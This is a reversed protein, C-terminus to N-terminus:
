PVCKGLGNTDSNSFDPCTTNSWIIRSLNAGTLISNPMFTHSLDARSLNAGSFDVSELNMGSLNAGSLNANTFTAVLLNAGTRPTPGVVGCTAGFNACRRGSCTPAGNCRQPQHM